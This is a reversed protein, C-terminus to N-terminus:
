FHLNLGVNVSHIDVDAALAYIGDAPTDAFWTHSGYDTYLYETKISIKDTLKREVGAGVVWGTLTASQDPLGPSTMSVSAHAWAFGGTGYILNPGAIYGARARVTGYWDIENSIVPDTIGPAYPDTITDSLDGYGVTAELGILFMPNVELNVGAQLGGFAGKPSSDYDSDSLNNDTIITQLRSGIATSTNDGWAYGGHAGVYFGGWDSVPENSLVEDASASVSGALISVLLMLLTKRMTM